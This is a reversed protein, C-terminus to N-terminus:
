VKLMDWTSESSKMFKEAPLSLPNLIINNYHKVIRLRQLMM